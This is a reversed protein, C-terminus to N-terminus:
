NKKFIKKLFGGGGPDPGELERLANRAHNNEPDLELAKRFMAVSRSTMLSARYLDGLAVYPEHAQPHEKVLEQLSKEAEKVWKTNKAKARAILVQAKLRDHGELNPFAAQAYQIADSVQGVRLKMEAMRLSELAVWSVHAGETRAETEDGLGLVAADPEVMRGIVVPPLREAYSRRGDRTRLKEYAEGLKLFVAGRMEAVDALSPDLRTDPHCAKLM